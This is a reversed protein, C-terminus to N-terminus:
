RKEGIAEFAVSGCFKNGNKQYMISYEGETEPVNVIVGGEVSSYAAVSGVSIEQVGVLTKGNYLAIYLKPTVATSLNNVVKAGAVLQEATISSLEETITVNGEEDVSGIAFLGSLTVAARFEVGSTEREAYVSTIVYVDGDSIAGVEFYDDGKATEGLKTRVGDEVKYVIYKDAEGQIEWLLYGDLYTINSVSENFAAYSEFDGNALLNTNTEDGVKVVSVNDILASFASNDANNRIHFNGDASLQYIAEYKRWGNEVDTKEWGSAGLHQVDKGDTTNAANGEPGLLAKAMWQYNFNPTVKAYFTVKYQSSTDYCVGQLLQAGDKLGSMKLAAKGSYSDEQDEKQFRSNSLSICQGRLPHGNDGFGASVGAKDFEGKALFSFTYEGSELPAGTYNLETSVPTDVRLRENVASIGAKGSHAADSGIEITCVAAASPISISWNDITVIDGETAFM